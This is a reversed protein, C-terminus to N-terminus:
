NRRRSSCRNTRKTRKTGRTKKAKISKKSKKSKKVRHNRRTRKGGSFWGCKPEATITAYNIGNETEFYVPTPAKYTCKNFIVPRMTAGFDEKMKSVDSDNLGLPNFTGTIVNTKTSDKRRLIYDFEPTQPSAQTPQPSVPRPNFLNAVHSQKAVLGHSVANDGGFMSNNRGVM